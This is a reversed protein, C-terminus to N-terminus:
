FDNEAFNAFIIAVEAVLDDMTGTNDLRIVPCTLQEIWREHVALSRGTFTGEDYQSAWTLFAESNQKFTPNTDLLKGYREVERARLRELRLAPPVYLFIAYDYAHTWEPGWSVMSGSIIVNELAEFDETIRANRKEIPIKEQFPPDTKVWYYDDADLHTYSWRQSLAEGLSTTGSGSAGFIHIKM